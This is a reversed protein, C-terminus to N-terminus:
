TVQDDVTAWRRRQAIEVLRQVSVPDPASVGARGTRVWVGFGRILSWPTAPLEPGFHRSFVFGSLDVHFEKAFESILDSADIGTCGLDNEVLTEPQIRDPPAGTERAILAAVREFLETSM